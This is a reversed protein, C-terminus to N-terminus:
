PRNKDVHLALGCHAATQARIKGEDKEVGIRNLNLINHQERGARRLVLLDQFASEVQKKEAESASSDLFTEAEDCFKSFVPKLKSM